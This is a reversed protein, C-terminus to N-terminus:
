YGCAYWCYATIVGLGNDYIQFQNITKSGNYLGTCAGWIPSTYSSEYTIQLNYNVNAFAKLLTITRVFASAGSPLIGGQEIWGDSYVRYWSTGNAYTTVVTRIGATNLNTKATATINNLDRSAANIGTLLSGDVAPMKGSTDLQVLQSAGNFTNGQKTVITDTVDIKKFLASDIETKKYTTAGDAKLSVALNINDIKGQVDLFRNDHAVFSTNHISVVKDFANIDVSPVELNVSAEAVTIPDFNVIGSIANIEQNIDVM